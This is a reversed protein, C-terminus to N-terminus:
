LARVIQKLHLSLFVISLVQHFPRVAKQNTLDFISLL